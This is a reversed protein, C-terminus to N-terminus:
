ESKEQLLHSIAAAAQGVAFDYVADAMPNLDDLLESPQPYKRMEGGVDFDAALYYKGTQADRALHVIKIDDRDLTGTVNLKIM